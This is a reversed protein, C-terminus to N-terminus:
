PCAAPQPVPTATVLWAAACQQADYGTVEAITDLMDQMGAAKGAFRQYFTHLAADLQQRGVKQEVGRYFFAGKIYPNNSYLGSKLVDVVGCSQPWAVESTGQTTLGDLEGRYALWVADSTVSGATAELARAALYTATGESLVLDEWCRLRVGNGFWGHAAEHVQTVEDAMKESAVHWFPHHEMGGGFWPLPVSGVHSGFRYAGIHQELWDFAPVLHATGAVADAQGGPEYWVSVSTGDTTKGLPLESYNGVAWAAMYSPADNAIDKAYVATQLGPVGVVSLHFETGDSPNSHCPFVNGCFYPWSFSFGLASAGDLHEHNRWAYDIDLVLPETSAPVEIDLQAPGAVFRLPVGKSEVSAIALDGIEFSAGTSISAALTINATARKTILNVRLTTSLIDRSQDGIVTDSPAGAEPAGAAAQSGMGADGGEVSGGSGAGGFEAAGADGATGSTGAASTAGARAAPEQAGAGGTSPPASSAADSCSAACAAM